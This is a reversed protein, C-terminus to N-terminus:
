LSLRSMRCFNALLFGSSSWLCRSRDTLKLLTPLACFALANTGAWADLYPEAFLYEEKGVVIEKAHVKGYLSYDVQNRVRVMTTSFGFHQRHWKDYSTQFEGSCWNEWTLDVPETDGYDGHLPMTEMVPWTQQYWPACLLVLLFLSYLGRM